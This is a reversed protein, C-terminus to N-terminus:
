RGGGEAPLPLVNIRTLARLVRLREELLENAGRELLIESIAGAVAVLPEVPEGRERRPRLYEDRYYREVSEADTDLGTKFRFSVYREFSIREEIFAKCDGESLKYHVLASAFDRGGLYTEERLQGVQRDAEDPRALLFPTVALDQLVLRRDVLRQLANTRADPGLDPDELNLMAELRLETEVQSTTIAELGVIAAIRDVIEGGLGSACLVAAIAGSAGLRTTSRMGVIM